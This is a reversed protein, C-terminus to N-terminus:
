QIEVSNSTFPTLILFATSHAAVFSTYVNQFIGQDMGAWIDYVTYSGTLGVDSWKLSIKDDSPSRNFLAVSVRGNSLPAAWVELLGGTVLDLCFNGGRSIKGLLDDDIIGLHDSAVISTGVGNKAANLDLEYTNSNKIFGYGFIYRAHPWPGSAGDQNNWLPSGNPSSISFNGPGKPPVNGNPSAYFYTPKINPQNCNIGAWGGESGFLNFLCRQNGLEDYTSLLAGPNSSGASLCMGSAGASSLIGNNYTWVQNSDGQGPVKCPYFQVDPGSFDYVDLCLNSQTNEIHGSSSQLSWQQTASKTDCTKLGAPDSPGSSDVCLNQGVNRMLGDAFEWQQWPDSSNCPQIYLSTRSLNAEKWYWKQTARSSDCKAIVAVSDLETSGLQNNQPIQVAVRKAQIGLSDQNVSIADKNSLVQIIKSTKSLNRFDNGLILPSKMICWMTMHAQCRNLSDQDKDCLFDQGNGIEIMDLDNWWGGFTANSSNHAYPWLNSAIDVLSVMSLWRASIDHGVRKANGYGGKTILADDPDGEVTLVMPRGSAQIAQWMTGYLQNDTKSGCASCSDDKVYDIGWDAWQKADLFEHDCSAAFGDCTKTGKATYLGSKLGLSHIFSTVAAFGDPFKEPNPVQHGDASRDALMWCDDSNVYEYGADSLGIDVVAKAISTLIEADVSCGFYNWSNWGMPPTKAVDWSSALSFLVALIIFSSFM